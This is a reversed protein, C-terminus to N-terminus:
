RYSIGKCLILGKFEGKENDIVTCKVHIADGLTLGFSSLIAQKVGGTPTGILRISLVGELGDYKLPRNWFKKLTEV